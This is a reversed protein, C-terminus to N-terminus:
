SNPRSRQQELESLYAQIFALRGKADDVVRGADERAALYRQASSVIMVLQDLEFIPLVSHISEQPESLLTPVLEDTEVPSDPSLMDVILPNELLYFHQARAQEEELLEREANQDDGINSWVAKMIVKVLKKISAQYESREGVVGSATEYAEDLRSKLKLLVDSEVETDLAVIEEVLKVFSGRFKELGAHDKRQADVLAVEDYETRSEFLPNDVKRRFHREWPGPIESYTINSPTM